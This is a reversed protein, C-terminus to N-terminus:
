RCSADLAYAMVPQRQPQASAGLLTMLANLATWPCEVDFTAEIVWFAAIAARDPGCSVSSTM